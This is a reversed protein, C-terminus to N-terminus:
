ETATSRRRLTAFPRTAGEPRTEMLPAVRSQGGIWGDSQAMVVITRTARDGAAFSDQIVYKVFSSQMANDPTSGYTKIPGIQRPRPAQKIAAM